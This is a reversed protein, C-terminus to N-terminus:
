NPSSKKKLEELYKKMLIQYNRAFDSVFEQNELLPFLDYSLKQWTVAREIRRELEKGLEYPTNIGTLDALRPWNPWVGKQLYWFLDYFDRGKIDVEQKRGKFWLRKLVANIKGAMLTPLDYHYALFNFHYENVVTFDTQFFRSENKTVEVKVYLKDSESSTALGLKRLIPFKLYIRSKRQVKIDVKEWNYQKRLTTKLDGALNALALERVDEVRWDFDIDESLRPLGFCLRLCSGGTFILKKWLPHNYIRELILLQLYEKLYNKIVVPRVGAKKKEAVIQKLNAELM